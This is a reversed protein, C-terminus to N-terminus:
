RPKGEKFLACGYAKLALNAVEASQLLADLNLGTEARAWDAWADLCFQMRASTAQSLGVLMNLDGRPLYKPPGPNRELDGALLLLLRVWRGLPRTWIDFGSVDGQRLRRLWTPEPRTPGPVARDRSPGDARNWASRSHLCGPYLAGGLIYGLSTRLIRSLAKSNSSSRGKAAAGM